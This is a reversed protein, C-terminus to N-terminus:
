KRRLSFVEFGLKEQTSGMIGKPAVMIVVIAIGGLILMSISPYSALRQDLLVYIFSGIIPGEITGIGGIITIFLMRITWDIAFASYPQIFINHLYLVGSIIGTMGAAILFCTIKCRFIDVGMTESSLEDDRIAMLGLGIKSRLILYVLAVSAIGIGLASFYITNFSLKYAPRVYLGM